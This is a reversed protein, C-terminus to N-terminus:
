PAVVLKRAETYEGATVRCFYLGSVVRRGMEDSADWTVDHSGPPLPADVLTRVHRGAVDYVTLTAHGGAPTKFSIRTASRFPNPHAVLLRTSPPRPVEPVDSTPIGYVGFRIDDFWPTSNFDLGYCDCFVFCCSNYIGLGIRVARAYSPVVGTLDVQFESGTSGCSPLEFLRRDLGWQNAFDSPGLEPHAPDFPYWQIRPTVYLGPQGAARFFGGVEMVYGTSNALGEEELDIWPSLALNSQCCPHEFYGGAPNWAV